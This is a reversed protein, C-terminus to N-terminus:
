QLAGDFGACTKAEREINKQEFKGKCAKMYNSTFSTKIKLRRETTNKPTEHLKKLNFILHM